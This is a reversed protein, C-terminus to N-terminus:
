TIALILETFLACFTLQGHLNSSGLPRMGHVIDDFGQIADPSQTSRVAGIAVEVAKLATQM